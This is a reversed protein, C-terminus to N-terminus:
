LPIRFTLFSAREVRAGGAATALKELAGDNKNPSWILAERVGRARAVELAAAFIRRGFGKERFEAEVSLAIQARSQADDMRIQAAARLTDQVYGGLVVAMDSALRLCYLDIDAGDIKPEYQLLAGTSALRRLHHRFDELDLHSLVRLDIDMTQGMESTHNNQALAGLSPQTLVEAALSFLHLGTENLACNLFSRWGM